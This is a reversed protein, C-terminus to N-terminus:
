KLRHQYSFDLIIIIFFNIFFSLLQLVMNPSRDINKGIFLLKWCMCLPPLKACKYPPLLFFGLGLGMQDKPWGGERFFFFSFGQKPIKFKRSRRGTAPCPEGGRTSVRGKKQRV